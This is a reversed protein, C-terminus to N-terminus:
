IQQALYNEIGVQNITELQTELWDIHQEEDRVMEELLNRTTFDGVEACHRIAETYVGVADTEQQADLRFDEPVNEGVRVSGLRQLNPIGDLYLIHEILHQADRMEEISLERLKQALKAFGWHGCMEAHIFYQNIATLENTLITNLFEVVGPKAKM